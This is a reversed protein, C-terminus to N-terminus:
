KKLLAESLRDIASTTQKPANALAEAAAAEESERIRAEELYRQKQLQRFATPTLM